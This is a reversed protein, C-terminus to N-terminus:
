GVRRWVLVSEIFCCFLPTPTHFLVLFYHCFTCDCRDSFLINWHFYFRWITWGVVYYFYLIFFFVFILYYKKNLLSCLFINLLLVRLHLLLQLFCVLFFFLFTYWLCSLWWFPLQRGLINVAVVHSFLRFFFFFIFLSNWIGFLFVLFGLCIFYLNIFLLYIFLCDSLDHGCTVWSVNNTKYLFFFSVLKKKGM